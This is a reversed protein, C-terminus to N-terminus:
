RASTATSFLPKRTQTTVRPDGPCVIRLAEFHPRDCERNELSECCARFAPPLGAIPYVESAFPTATPSADPLPSLPAPSNRGCSLVAQAGVLILFAVFFTKRM